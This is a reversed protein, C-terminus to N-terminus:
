QTATFNMSLVMFNTPAAKLSLRVRAGSSRGQTANSNTTTVRFEEVSDPTVRLVPTFAEGTQQENVDVGDLTLNAQDSRGGAVFGDRTVGPQLSLLDGVNRANLPLQTIQKSQFNNGLSADQNNVLAEAGTTTIEVTGGVEGVELTVNLSVRNDVQASVSTGSSKFGTAAVEVVYDSPPVSQFNFNGSSDTTATRAFGKDKNKLVVTAGAIAAGKQDVVTGSVSSVGTQGIALSFALLSFLTALALSFANLRNRIRSM